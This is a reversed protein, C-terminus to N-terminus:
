TIEKQREDSKIKVLDMEVYETEVSGIDCM